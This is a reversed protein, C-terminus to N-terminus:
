ESYFYPVDGVIFINAIPLSTKVPNTDTAFPIVVKVDVEVDVTLTIKTNNIGLSQYDQNINSQVEGITSFRVPINPGIHALLANGTAQGLPITHVIGNDSFTLDDYEIEIDRPLSLDTIRGQEIDLLYSQVSNTVEYLFKNQIATDLEIAVIKGNDDQIYTVMEELNIDDHLENTIAQNIALTGIRQTETNAIEILTPRIGKEIIILGQIILIIFILFSFLIVYKFPLPSRRRKKSMSNLFKKITHKKKKRIVRM